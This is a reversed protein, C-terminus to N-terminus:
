AYPRRHLIREVIELAPKAEASTDGPGELTVTQDDQRMCAVSLIGIVVSHAFRQLEIVEVARVPGDVSAKRAVDDVVFKAMGHEISQSRMKVFTDGTFRCGKVLKEAIEGRDKHGKAVIRKALM